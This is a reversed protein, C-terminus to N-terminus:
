GNGNERYRKTWRLAAREGEPTKDFHLIAGCEVCQIATSRIDPNQFTRNGRIGALSTVAGCSPCPMRPEVQAALAMEPSDQWVVWVMVRQVRDRHNAEVSGLHELKM